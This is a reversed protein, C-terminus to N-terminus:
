FPLRQVRLIRQKQKLCHKMFKWSFLGFRDVPHSVDIFRSFPPQLELESELSFMPCYDEATPGVLMTIKRFSPQLDLLIGVVPQPIERRLLNLIAASVFPCLM